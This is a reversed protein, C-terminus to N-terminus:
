NADARAWKPRKFLFTIHTMQGLRFLVIAGAIGTSACLLALTAADINLGSKILMVRTMAMFLTFSLYIVISNQGCYRLFEAIRFKSLLVGTSVVALAGASGLVLSIVPLTSAGAVVAITNLVAWGLLAVAISRTPRKDLWEAYVFIYPAFLYGAYIYVFRAAFEDIVTAGTQIPLIELVAAACFVLGPPADKLLRIMVMFVPLMYIFWVAGHPQIFFYLWSGLTLSESFDRKVLFQISMWLVYFYGFHLVKRDLFKGIPANITRSLFLGAILFFDPMRFPRAWEIFGNLWSTTQLAKEVGLTSHMFVVLFICIGKAYDIWPIRTSIKTSSAAKEFGPDYIKAIFDLQSM